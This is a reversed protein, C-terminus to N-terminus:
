PEKPQPNAVGGFLTVQADLIESIRQTTDSNWQYYGGETSIGARELGAPTLYREPYLVEHLRRLVATAERAIDANAVRKQNHSSM